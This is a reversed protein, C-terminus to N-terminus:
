AATLAELFRDAADDLVAGGDAFSRVPQRAQLLDLLSQPLVSEIPAPTVVPVTVPVNTRTSPVIVDTSSPPIAPLTPDVMPPAVTL